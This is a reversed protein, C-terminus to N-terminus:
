LAMEMQGAIKGKRKVVIWRKGYKETILNSLLSYYRATWRGKKDREDFTMLGDAVMGLLINTVHQQPTMKLAAAIRNMTKPEDDGNEHWVNFQKIVQDRREQLTYAKKEKAM